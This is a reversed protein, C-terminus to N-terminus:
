MVLRKYRMGEHVEEMPVGIGDEDKAIAFSCHETRNPWSLNLGVELGRFPPRRKIAQSFSSADCTKDSAAPDQSRISNMPGEGGEDTLRQPTSHPWSQGDVTSDLCHSQQPNKQRM